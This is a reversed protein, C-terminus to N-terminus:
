LARPLNCPGRVGDWDSGLAVHEAGIAAVLRAVRQTVDGLASHGAAAVGDAHVCAALSVGVIGDAAAVAALTEDPVVAVPPGPAAGGLVGGAAACAAADSAPVVHSLALPKTAISLADAIVADSSHSLDVLIGLEECAALLTTGWPTRGAPAGAAPVVGRPAGAANHAAHHLVISRVGREFLAAAAAAADEGAPTGELAEAGEVALLAAAYPCGRPTGACLFRQVVYLELEDKSTIVQLKGKSAAAAAWTRALAAEVRGAATRAARPPTGALLALPLAADTAGAPTSNGAAAATRPAGCLQGLLSRARDRDPCALGVAATNPLSAFVVPFTRSPSANHATAAIAAAACYAAGSFFQLAVHGDIM